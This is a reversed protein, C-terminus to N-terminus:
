DCNIKPSFTTGYTGVEVVAVVATELVVGISDNLKVALEELRADDVGTVRVSDEIAVALSDPGLLRGNRTAPRIASNTAM